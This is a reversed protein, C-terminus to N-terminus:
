TGAVDFVFRRTVRRSAPLPEYVWTAVVFARVREDLEPRGSPQSVIADRVRGDTGITYTLGVVLAPGERPLWSFRCGAM